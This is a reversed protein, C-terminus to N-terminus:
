TVGLNLDDICFVLPRGISSISRVFYGYRLYCHIKEKKRIKTNKRRDGVLSKGSNVILLGAPTNSIHVTQVEHADPNVGNYNTPNTNNM